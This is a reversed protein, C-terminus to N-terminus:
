YRPHHCIAQARSSMSKTIGMDSLKPPIQVTADHSEKVKKYDGPKQMEGADKQM